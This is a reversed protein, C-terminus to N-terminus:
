AETDLRLQTFMIWRQQELVKRQSDLTDVISRWFKTRTTATSIASKLGDGNAESLTRLTKEAPLKSAGSYSAVLTAFADDFKEQAGSRISQEILIARSHWFGSENIADCLKANVSALNEPTLNDTKPLKINFYDRWQVMSKGDILYSSDLTKSILEMLNKGAKLKKILENAASQDASLITIPNTSDNESV